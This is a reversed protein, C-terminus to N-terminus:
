KADEAARGRWGARCGPPSFAKKHHGDCRWRLPWAVTPMSKSGAFRPGSLPVPSKWHAFEPQEGSGSQDQNAKSSPNGRVRMRANGSRRVAPNVHQLHHSSCSVERGFVNDIIGQDKFSFLEDARARKEVSGPRLGPLLLKRSRPRMLLSGPQSVPRGSPADCVWLLLEGRLAIFGTAERITVTM